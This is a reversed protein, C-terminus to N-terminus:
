KKFIKKTNKKAKIIYSKLASAINKEKEKKAKCFNFFGGMFTAYKHYNPTKKEVAGVAWVLGSNWKRKIFEKIWGDRTPDRVKVM